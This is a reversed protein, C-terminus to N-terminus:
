NIFITSLDLAYQLLQIQACGGTPSKMEKIPFVTQAREQHSKFLMNLQLNFNRIFWRVRSHDSLDYHTEVEPTAWPSESAM